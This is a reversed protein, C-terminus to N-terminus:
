IVKRRINKWPIFLFHGPIFSSIINSWIPIGRIRFNGWCNATVSKRRRTVACYRLLRAFCLPNGVKHNLLIDKGVVAEIISDKLYAYWRDFSMKMRLPERIAAM